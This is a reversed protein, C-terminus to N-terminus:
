KDRILLAKVFFYCAVCGFAIGPLPKNSITLYINMLSFLYGIATLEMKQKLM